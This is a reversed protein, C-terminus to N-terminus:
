LQRNYVAYITRIGCTIYMSSGDSAMDAYAQPDGGYLPAPRAVGVVGSYGPLEGTANGSGFLLVAPRVPLGLYVSGSSYVVGLQLLQTVRDSASLNLQDDTATFADVGPPSVFMGADGNARLGIVARRTM